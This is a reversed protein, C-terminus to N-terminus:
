FLYLTAFTANIGSQVFVITDLKDDSLIKLIFLFINIVTTCKLMNIKPLNHQCKHCYYTNQM